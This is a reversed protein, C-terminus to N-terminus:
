SFLVLSMSLSASSCFLISMSTRSRVMAFVPVEMRASSVTRTSSLWAIFFCESSWSLFIATRWSSFLVRWSSFLFKCCIFESKSVIMSFGVRGGAAALRAGGGDIGVKVAGGGGTRATAGRGGVRATVGRGGDEAGM